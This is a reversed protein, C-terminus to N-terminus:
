VPLWCGFFVITFLLSFSSLPMQKQAKWYVPFATELHECDSKKKRELNKKENAYVIVATFQIKEAREKRPSFLKVERGV